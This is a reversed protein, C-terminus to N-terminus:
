APASMERKDSWSFRSIRKAIKWGDARRVYTDLYTVGNTTLTKKPGALAIQMALCYHQSSANDGEVEILQQGNFHYTAEFNSSFSSLAKEFEARGKWSGVLTDGLYFDVQADETLLRVLATFDKIDALQSFTDVIEKIAIRDELQQLRQEVSKTTM